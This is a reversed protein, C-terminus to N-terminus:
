GVTLTTTVSRGNWTATIRGIVGFPTSESVTVPFAVGPSGPPITVSAPVTVGPANTELEVTVGFPNPASGIGVAWQTVSGRKAWGEGVAFADPVVVLPRGAISTGLDATPEVIAPLEARSVRIPFSATTSGAPVIVSPPVYIGAGYYTNSLLRVAIGGAPAPNKLVVTGQVTSGVVAAEAGIRLEAIARTAPDAAVVTVQGVPTLKSGTVQAHLTRVVTTKPATLRIPFSVSTAGAPVFARGGTSHDYVLDSVRLSIWVGGAPAPGSLNITQVAGDGGTITSPSVSGSKLTVAPAPTSHTAHAAPAALGLGLAAVIVAARPGRRWRISRTM